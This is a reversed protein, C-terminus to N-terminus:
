IIKKFFRSLVVSILAILTGAIPIHIFIFTLSTEKLGFILNIRDEINSVYFTAFIAYIVYKGYRFIGGKDM